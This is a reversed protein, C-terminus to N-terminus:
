ETLVDPRPGFRPPTAGRECCGLDPAAGDYADNFNFLRVGKDAVSSGPALLPANESPSARRDLAAPMVFPSAFVRTPLPTYVGHRSYIQGSARADMPGNYAVRNWNAFAGGRWVYADNDFDCRIMRGTSWLAPGATGVFLNNRSTVDTVTESGPQILFPVGLKVSTNHFLFIGATHNHLKFPTHELNFFQNRYAYVPGGRVPQFSIASFCNTVRNRFVRVNTDAYDAEIGDDTCGDIENNHIDSASLRGEDGNHVGDALNEFRNHSVVHGSGTVIVGNIDELGQQRPWSAPGTFVNDSIHIGRSEAYIAGYAAFGNHTVEFRSRRVVLHNARDARMLIGANRLTLRDFWLYARRSADIVSAGGQGDLVASGDAPGQFVIPRDKTGSVTMTVAGDYRGSALMFLDGPEAQAAAAVLGRFPDEATGRGGAAQGPTRPAVHRVRLGAPRAPVAATRMALTRTVGGGDPDDLILRVEYATDPALEVISGAFLRGGAVRNDAAAREPDVRLLPYGDRWAAGGAQRYSVNVAANGNDDGLVPWRLALASPTAPEAVIEGPRASPAAETRLSVVAFGIALLSRFGPSM